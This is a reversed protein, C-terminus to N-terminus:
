ALGEKEAFWSEVRIDNDGKTLEDGNEIVSRPVWVERKGQQVLVAKATSAKVTGDIPEAPM